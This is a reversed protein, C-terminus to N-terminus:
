QITTKEPPDEGLIERELTDRETVTEAETETETEDYDDDDDQEGLKSSEIAEKAIRTWDSM